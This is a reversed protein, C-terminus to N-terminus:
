MTLQHELKLRYKTVTTENLVRDFEYM